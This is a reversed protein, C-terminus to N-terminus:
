ISIASLEWIWVRSQEMPPLFPVGPSYRKSLSIVPGLIIGSSYLVLSALIPEAFSGPKESRGSNVSFFGPLFSLGLGIKKLWLLQHKQSKSFPLENKQGALLFRMKNKKQAKGCYTIMLQTRSLWKRVLRWFSISKQFPELIGLLLSFISEFGIRALSRNRIIVLIFLEGGAFLQRELFSALRQRWRRHWKPTATTMMTATTTATSTSTSTTTTSTANDNHVINANILFFCCPSFNQQVSHVPLLSEVPEIM